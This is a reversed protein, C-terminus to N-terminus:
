AVLRWEGTHPGRFQMVPEALRTWHILNGRLPREGATAAAITNWAAHTPAAKLAQAALGALIRLAGERAAISLLASTEAAGRSIIQAGLRLSQPEDELGPLLFAMALEENSLTELNAGAGSGEGSRQVANFGRVNATEVLWPVVAMGRALRRVKMLLPTVPATIGLRQAITNM